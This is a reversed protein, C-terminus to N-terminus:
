IDLLKIYKNIKNQIKNQNKINQVSIDDIKCKFDRQNYNERLYKISFVILKFAIDNNLPNITAVYTSSDRMNHNFVMLTPICWRNIVIPQIAKKERILYSKIVQINNNNYIFRQVKPATDMPQQYWEIVYLDHHKYRDWDRLQQMSQNGFLRFSLLQNGESKIFQRVCETIINKIEVMQKQQNGNLSKCTYVAIKDQIDAM